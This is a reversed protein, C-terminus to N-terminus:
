LFIIFIAENTWFIDLNPVEAIPAASPAVSRLENGDFLAGQIRLNSLTLIPANGGESNTGNQGNHWSTGLKLEDM